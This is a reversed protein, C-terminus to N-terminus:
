QDIDKPTIARIQEYLRDCRSDLRKNLDSISQDAYRHIEDITRHTDEFTSDCHRIYEYFENKLTGIENKLKSRVYVLVSLLISGVVWAISTYLVIMIESM